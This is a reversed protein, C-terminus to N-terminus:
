KGSRLYMERNILGEEVLIGKGRVCIQEVRHELVFFGVSKKFNNCL